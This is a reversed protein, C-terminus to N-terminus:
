GAEDSKAKQAACAAEREEFTARLYCNYVWRGRGDGHGLDNCLRALAQKDTLQLVGRYYDYQEVSFGRRNGHQADKGTIGIKKMRRHNTALAAKLTPSEVLYKQVELVKLAADVAVAAEASKSPCLFVSRVRGGKTGHRVTVPQGAAIARKWELLSDMCMVAEKGRLGIAQELLLLARTDARAKGLAAAFVVLNIVKAKGIRSASPVGLATRSCTVAAFEARGVCGLARRIHSAENQVSFDAVVGIRSQIYARFQKLTLNTPDVKGWRNKKAFEELAVFTTRIRQRTAISAGKKGLSAAMFKATMSDNEGYPIVVATDYRARVKKKGHDLARKQARTLKLVQGNATGAEKTRMAM